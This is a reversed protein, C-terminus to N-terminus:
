LPPKKRQRYHMSLERREGLSDLSLSVPSSQTFKKRTRAKSCCWSSKRASYLKPGLLIVDLLLKWYYEFIQSRIGSFCWPCPITEEYKAALAATQKPGASETSLCERDNFPTSIRGRHCSATTTFLWRRDTRSSKWMAHDEAAHSTWQLFQLVLSVASTTFATCLLYTLIVFCYWAHDEFLEYTM